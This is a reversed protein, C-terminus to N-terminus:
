FQEKRRLALCSVSHMNVLYGTREQTDKVREFGYKLDIKDNEKSQRYGIENTDDRDFFTWDIGSFKVVGRRLEGM